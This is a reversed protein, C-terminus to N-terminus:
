TWSTVAVMPAPINTNPNWPSPGKETARNPHSILTESTQNYAPFRRYSLSFKRMNKSKILPLTITGTRQGAVQQWCTHFCRM